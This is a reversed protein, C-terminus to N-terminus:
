EFVAPVDLADGTKKPFANIVNQRETEDMKVEDARFQNQLDTLYERAEVKSTDVEHLKEVYAIIAPLDKELAEIEEKTLNMRALKAVPEVKIRQNSM